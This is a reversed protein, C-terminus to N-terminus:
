GEAVTFVNNTHCHPCEARYTRSQEEQGADKYVTQDKEDLEDLNVSWTHGCQCCEIKRWRNSMDAAEKRV